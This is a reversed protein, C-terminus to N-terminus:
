LTIRSCLRWEAGRHFLSREFVWIDRVLVEKTKDGSVVVGKSDYAEFRTFM